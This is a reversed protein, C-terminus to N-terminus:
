PWTCARAYAASPSASCRHEKVAPAKGVAAPSPLCRSVRLLRVPHINAPRLDVSLFFDAPPGVSSLASALLLLMTPRLRKGEAGLQARAPVEVTQCNCPLSAQTSASAECCTLAPKLPTHSAQLLSDGSVARHADTRPKLSVVAVGAALVWSARCCCSQRCRLARRLSISRRASWSPSARCSEGGCGSRCATLRRKSWSSPTRTGQM